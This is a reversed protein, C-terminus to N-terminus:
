TRSRTRTTSPSTTGGAPTATTAIAVRSSRTSRRTTTPRRRSASTRPTMALTYSRRLAAGGHLPPQGAIQLADYNSFGAFESFLIDAYGLYPRLFANPLAGGTTPDISSPLFNTGYPVANLNRTQLLKRGKSGVYAFDGVLKYGLDRQM